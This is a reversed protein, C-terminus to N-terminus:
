TAVSQIYSDVCLSTLLFIVTQRARLATGFDGRSGDSLIMRSATVEVDQSDFFCVSMGSAIPLGTARFRAAAESM